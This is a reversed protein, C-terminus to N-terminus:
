NPFKINKTLRRKVVIDFVNEAAKTALFGAASCIIVKLLQDRLGLVVVPEVEIKSDEEM